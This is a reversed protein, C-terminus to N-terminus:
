LELIRLGARAKRLFDRPSTVSSLKRLVYRPRVYFRKYAVRVLELLEERTLHEEWFRPAFDARPELAYERWYDVKFLGKKLGEEYLETDPYPTLIGFLAFDPDLEVAFDITRLVDESTKEHPCGLMFYAVSEIGAERTWRFVDRVQEVSIGKRLALLGEDSGTEVGYQIRVCGSRRALDLMEPTVRDIRARFSWRIDIGREIIARCIAGVRELQVNFTDDVFYIERLGLSRCHELERVVNEASRARYGGRPTSCFSCQYPCGRSSAVTGVASEHHLLYHYCRYDVKSRDPFPLHEIDTIHARGGSVVVGEREVNVGVIGEVSRGAEIADLLRLFAKEGEGSISCDVGELMASEVPFATAHPGGLCIFVDDSRERIARIVLAADLLSHTHATVGILRPNTALAREALENHSVGALEGDIITAEHRSAHTLYSQLYMLGLPPLIGVEEGVCEPVETRILNRVPPRILTVRM